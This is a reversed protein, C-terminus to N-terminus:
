VAAALWTRAEDLLRITTWARWGQGGHIPHYGERLGHGLLRVAGLIVLATTAFGVLTAPVVGIATIRALDAVSDADKLWPWCVAIGAAAGVAPVLSAAIGSAAYAGLWIPKNPPAQEDWPGRAAGIHEAPAGSWLQDAPVRGFVGSGPAIEARKGVRAGPLVHVKDNM